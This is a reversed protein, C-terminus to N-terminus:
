FSAAGKKDSYDYWIRLEEAATQSCKLEAVLREFEQKPKM